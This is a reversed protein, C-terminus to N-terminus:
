IEIWLKASSFKKSFWSTNKLYQSIPLCHGFTLPFFCSFKSKSGRYHYYYHHHYNHSVIFIIFLTRFHSTMMQHIKANSGKFRMMHYVCSSYSHPCFRLDSATIFTFISLNSTKCLGMSVTVERIKTDTGLKLFLCYILSNLIFCNSSWFGMDWSNLASFLWKKQKHVKKLFITGFSRIFGM